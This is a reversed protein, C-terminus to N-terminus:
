DNFGPVIDTDAFPDPIDPAGKPKPYPVGLPGEALEPELDNLANGPDPANVM